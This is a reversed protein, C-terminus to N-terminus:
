EESSPEDSNEESDSTTLDIIKPNDIEIALIEIVVAANSSGGNFGAAAGGAAAGGAGPGGRGLASTLTFFVDISRKRTPTIGTHLADYWKGEDETDYDSFRPKSTQSRYHKQLDKNGAEKVTLEVRVYHVTMPSDNTIGVRDEIDEPWNMLYEATVNAGEHLKIPAPTDNTNTGPDALAAAYMRDSFTRAATKSLNFWHEKSAREQLSKISGRRAAANGAEPDVRPLLKLLVLLGPDRATDVFSKPIGDEAAMAYHTSLNNFVASRVADFPLSTALALQTDNTILGRESQQNAIAATMNILLDSWILRTVNPLKDDPVVILPKEIESGDPNRGEMPGAGAPGGAAGPGGAKADFGAGAAAPSGAPSGFGGGPSNNSRRSPRREEPRMLQDMVAPVLFALKAVIAAAVPNNSLNRSDTFLSGQSLLAINELIQHTPHDNGGYNLILVDTMRDIVDEPPLGTLLDGKLVRELASWSERTNNKALGDFIAYVLQDLPLNGFQSRGGPMGAAGGAGAPPLAGDPPFGGAAPVGAGAAAPNAPLPEGAKGPLAGAAAGGPPIPAGAPGPVAGAAPGQALEDSPISRIQFLQPQFRPPVLQQAGAPPLPEGAKGPFGGGAAPPPGGAKGPFGGAAPPAEGAKAPFAGGPQAAPPDDAYPDIGIPKQGYQPDNSSIPGLTPITELLEVLLAAVDPDNPHDEVYHNVADILRSDRQQLATHYDDPSWDATNKPLPKTPPAQNGSPANAGGPFGANAAGALAPDGAGGPFAGAAGGPPMAAGGGAAPGGPPMAGAPGGGPPMAGAPGGPPMAGAPGGAALAGDAGPPMAGAGKAPDMGGAMPGGAPAAPPPSSASSPASSSESSGGGCGVCTMVVSLSLVVSAGRWCDALTSTGRHLCERSPFSM